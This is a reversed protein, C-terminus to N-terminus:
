APVRAERVGAGARSGRTLVTVERVVVPGGWADLEPIAIPNYDSIGAHPEYWKQLAIFFIVVPVLAIVSVTMFMPWDTSFPGVARYVQLIITQEKEFADIIPQTVAADDWSIWRVVATGDASGGGGAYGAMAVMATVASAAVAVTRWVHRAPKKLLTM